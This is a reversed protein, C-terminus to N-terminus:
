EHGKEEDSSDSTESAKKENARKTTLYIGTLALAVTGAVLPTTNTVERNTFGTSTFPLKPFSAEYFAAPLIYFSSTGGNEHEGFIHEQYVDPKEKIKQRALALMEDREGFKIAGSLCTAACAPELGEDLRHDCMDCKVILPFRQNLDMKPVEFPCAYMCYRCAICRNQDYMVIGEENRYLAGVTCASVCSPDDCHMCHFPASHRQLDPFEGIIGSQKMWIRTSTMPVNNEVSCAVNCSRCDICIAGDILFAYKGKKVNSM